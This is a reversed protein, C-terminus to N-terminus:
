IRHRVEGFTFQSYWLLYGKLTFTLVNLLMSMSHCVMSKFVWNFPLVYCLIRLSFCFMLYIVWELTNTKYHTVDSQIVDFFQSVTLFLKINNIVDNWQIVHLKLPLATAWHYLAKVCSRPTAPDFRVPMVANHGQALCMLKQKFSTRGLFVQRSMVSFITSKSMFFWILCILAISWNSVFRCFHMLIPIVLNLIKM